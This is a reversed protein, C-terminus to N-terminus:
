IVLTEGPRLPQQPPPSFLAKAFLVFFIGIMVLVLLLSPLIRSRDPAAKAQMLGSCIMVVGTGGLIGGWFFALQVFEVAGGSSFILLSGVERGYFAGLIFLFVAGALLRLGNRVTRRRM